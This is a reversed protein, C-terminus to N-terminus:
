GMVGDDVLMAAATATFAKSCSMIPFLTDETVPAQSGAERVGHGKLYVVRDDRVVAVAAGPVRFAELASRVADDVDKAAVDAGRAGSVAVALGALLIGVRNM